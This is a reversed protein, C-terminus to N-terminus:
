LVNATPLSWVIYLSSSQGTQRKRTYQMYIVHDTSLQQIVQCNVVRILQAPGNAVGLKKGTPIRREPNVKFFIARALLPLHKNKPTQSRRSSCSSGKSATILLASRCSQRKQLQKAIEAYQGIGTEPISTVIWCAHIPKSVLPEDQTLQVKFLFHQLREAEFTQILELPGIEKPHNAPESRLGIILKAKRLVDGKNLAADLVVFLSSDQCALWM